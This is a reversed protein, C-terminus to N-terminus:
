TEGLASALCYPITRGDSTMIVLPCHQAQRLDNNWPTMFEHVGLLFCSAGGPGMRYSDAAGTAALTPAAAVGNRGAYPVQAFFHRNPQCCLAPTFSDRSFLGDSQQELAAMIGAATVHGSPNASLRGLRPSAPRFLASFVAPHQLGFAAIAGVEQLNIGQAVGALLAAPLGAAALRDFARRAEFPLDRRGHLILSATEDFGDFEMFLLPKLQVLTQLLRDDHALRPGSCQLGVHTIGKQRALALFEGLQPHGAPDAGTYYIMEPMTGASELAGLMARVQEVALSCLPGPQSGSVRDHLRSLDGRAVWNLEILGVLPGSRARDRAAWHLMTALVDEGEFPGQQQDLLPVVPENAM